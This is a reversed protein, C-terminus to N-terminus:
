IKTKKSCKKKFDLGKEGFIGFGDDEDDDSISEFDFFRCAKKLGDHENQPGSERKGTKKAKKTRSKPNEPSEDDEIFILDSGKIDNKSKM